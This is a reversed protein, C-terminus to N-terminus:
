ILGFDSFPLYLVIETKNLLIERHTGVAAGVTEVFCDNWTQRNSLQATDGLPTKSYLESSFKPHNQVM